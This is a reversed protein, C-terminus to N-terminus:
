RTSGRGVTGARGRLIEATHNLAGIAGLSRGTGESDATSRPEHSTMRHSRQASAEGPRRRIASSWAADTYTRLTRTLDTSPSIRVLERNMVDGILTARGSGDSALDETTVIGVDFGGKTVFAIEQGSRVLAAQAHPIPMSVPLRLPARETSWRAPGECAGVPDDAHRSEIVSPARSNTQM